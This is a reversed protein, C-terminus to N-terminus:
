HVDDWTLQDFIKTPYMKTPKYRLFVILEEKKM